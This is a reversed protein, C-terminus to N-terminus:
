ETDDDVLTYVWYPCPGIKNPSIDSLSMVMGPVKHSSLEKNLHIRIMILVCKIKTQGISKINLAFWSFIM